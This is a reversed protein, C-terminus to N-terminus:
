ASLLRFQPIGWEALCHAMFDECWAQGDELGDEGLGLFPSFDGTIRVDRQERAGSRGHKELLDKQGALM